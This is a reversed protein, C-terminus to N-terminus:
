VEYKGTSWATTAITLKKRPDGSYLLFELLTIIIVIVIHCINM